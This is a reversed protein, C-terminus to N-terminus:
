PLQFDFKVTSTVECQKGKVWAPRARWRKIADMAADALVPEGELVKEVEVRGDKTIRAQLLVIGHVGARQALSPYSPAPRYTVRKLFDDPKEKVSGWFTMELSNIWREIADGNDISDNSQAQRLHDEMVAVPWEAPHNFIVPPFGVEVFRKNLRDVQEHWLSERLAAQSDMFQLRIKGGTTRLRLPAGGGNLVGVAHVQGIGNVPGQMTLHLASDAEIHQGTGNAVFADINAALNRPLYVILDGTGSALQSPAELRLMGKEAAVTPNIWATISGGSTAAQVAGSAGTVCISGGNSEVEMPGSVYIVHIGGGGTQARVSGRVDGFDIQGGGTRVSVFSATQGVTINGGVTELDARGGITRARIHGGGSHLSADGSIDGVNIHGGATFASLDGAVGMVKIHGGETELKAVPRGRSVEHLAPATRGIHGAIINGGQTRLFATGGIDGTTIDGADTNVEVNYNRPVAIEFQVWFQANTHHTGQPFLLGAIEVGTLSTGAKLSYKSLLQEAAAGRADTEVRVTYRVVPSASPELQTVNVSGLDTTLRLTLGEKTQLVGSRLISTRPAGPDGPKEPLAAPDKPDSAFAAPSFQAVSFAVALTWLWASRCAWPFVRRDFKTNM